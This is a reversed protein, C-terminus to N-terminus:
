HTHPRNKLLLVALLLGRGRAGRRLVSGLARSGVDLEVHAWRARPWPSRVMARHTNNLIQGWADGEQVDEWVDGRSDRRHRSKGDADESEERKNRLARHAGGAEM